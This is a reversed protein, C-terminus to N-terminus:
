RSRLDLILADTEEGAIQRLVVDAGLAVLISRNRFDKYFENLGDNIQGVKVTLLYKRQAVAFSNVAADAARKAEETAHGDADKSPSLITYMFGLSVGDLMGAIFYPRVEPAQANWWNGDRREQAFASTGACVSVVFAILM